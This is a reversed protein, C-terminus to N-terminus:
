GFNFWNGKPINYGCLQVGSQQLHRFIIAALPRLRQVEMLFACTYPMAERHTTSVIGNAGVAHDIEVLIQTCNVFCLCQYLFFILQHYGKTYLVYLSSSFKHCFLTNMYLHLFNKCPENISLRKLACFISHSINIKLYTEIDVLFILIKHKRCFTTSIFPNFKTWM